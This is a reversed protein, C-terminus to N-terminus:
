DQHREYEIRAEEQEEETLERKYVHNELIEISM